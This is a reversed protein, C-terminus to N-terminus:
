HTFFGYDGCPTDLTIESYELVSGNKFYNNTLEVIEEETKDGIYQKVEDEIEGVYDIGGKAYNKIFEDLPIICFTFDVDRWTGEGFDTDSEYTYGLIHIQKGGNYDPEISFFEMEIPESIKKFGKM